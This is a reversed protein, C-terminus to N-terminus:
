EANLYRLTATSDILSEHNSIMDGLLASVATLIDVIQKMQCLNAEEHEEALALAQHGMDLSIKNEVMIVFGLIGSTRCM